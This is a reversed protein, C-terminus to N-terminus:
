FWDHIHRLAGDWISSGYLMLWSQREDDIKLGLCAKTVTHVDGDEMSVMSLSASIKQREEDGFGICYMALEDGV